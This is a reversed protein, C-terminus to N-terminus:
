RGCGEVPAVLLAVPLCGFVEATSLTRGDADTKIRNGTFVNIWSRPTNEPLSISGDGLMGGEVTTPDENYLKTFFRPIAVLVCAEQYSRIFACIYESKRGSTELPLYKGERFVTAYNRRTNLAKYAIYLKIRGDRWSSIMDKIISLRNSDEVDAISNLYKIRRAYDVPRRNDPDVLSFDWLETGQYFDPIGPLTIKLLLQSLSNLVGYYAIKRQFEKFDPLFTNDSSDNLISDIFSLLASEYKRDIKLWSTFAKAERVAKIMYKKLREKFDALEEPFLPWAGILTQYLLLETNPEPFLRNKIKRKKIQNHQIWSSLHREWQEPIESLVSIRARIDESRKTDHTSTANMTHPWRKERAMNLKHFGSVSLGGTAPEGGVENLSILPHYNYLATDEFGKAMIAGTLQQWRIVFQLWQKKEKLTFGAPFDLLLVRKLYDLAEKLGTNRVAAGATAIEIYRRDAANVRLARTYTRYVPLLATVEVLAKIADENSLHGSLYALYHGLAETETHFLERMVQRKKECVLKSFSQRIGSVRHYVTKLRELGGSDIFFANLMRIFDYGTTGHVPWDRPITEDGSLIKEVLVYFGPKKADDPKIREQLRRLYQLPDYLGDIHDLRLGTVKGEAILRLVLAHTAEFVEPAEVRVGVLDGVDFFRRYGGPKNGAGQFDLWDTDFFGAFRSEHGRKMVDQWWPNEDSVAMHNPVIDLLLGMDQKHLTSVLSAFEKETGLEPNLTTPDTVDYGHLSGKRAKMIPSAYIDSIGFRKLYSVLSGADRFRFNKNFQLRYTADPIRLLISM